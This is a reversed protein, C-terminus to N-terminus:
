LIVSFLTITKQWLVSVSIFPVFIQCSDEEKYNVMAEAIPIQTCPGSSHVYRQIRSTLEIQDAKVGDCNSGRECLQTWNESGFLSGYTMDILSLYRSIASSGLPIIYFRIHNVWDPPRSGLLEVYHRLVAGQLWDGGFLIVKVTSPPKATSNCSFYLLVTLSTVWM